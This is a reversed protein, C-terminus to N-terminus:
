LDCAALAMALLCARVLAPPLLVGRRDAVVRLASSRAQSRGPVPLTLRVAEIHDAATMDGGADRTLSAGPAAAPRRGLRSPVPVTKLRSKRPGAAPVAMGRLVQIPGPRTGYRRARRPRVRARRHGPTRQPASRRPRDDGFGLTWWDQGRTRIETLEVACRPQQGPGPGRAATPGSALPFRSIRQTKRVPQWGPPDGIDPRPPSCPFSWKQWAQMRGRARGPVQLTGPSGRYAKVDLARGARVKVSLGPLHPDLLYSDERSETTAPFRAFWRAVATELQGPFIWRVELSRVSETVPNQSPEATM